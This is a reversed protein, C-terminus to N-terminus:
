RSDATAQRARRAMALAHLPLRPERPRRVLWSSRLVPAVPAVGTWEELTAFAADREAAPLDVLSAGHTGAAVTYTDVAENTGIDFAGATWPDYEGYLFIMQSAEERVWDAAADVVAPDYEPIEPPETGAYDDPGFRLLGELHPDATSPYGLEAYAQYYYADYADLSADSLGSPNSVAALWAWADDNNFSADPITECYEVGTYQFFSWEIGTIASEVAVPLEVRNYEIGLAEADARARGVMAQRRNQLYDVQADRIRQLCDAPPVEDFWVDYRTDGAAQNYPAVYAVTGDVDGPYLHRHYISTMGGKSAGTSIWAGDYIQHFAQAIEHHDAAGQVVRLFSWDTPDPRSPEFYRHEIIMQNADLLLTPEMPYDFYFNDYGTTGLVFPAHEDRHILTLFQTFRQGEPNEHDVPQDFGISFYRYGELDTDLEEVSVVQPLAAIREGIDVTTAADPEVPGADPSGSAADPEGVQDDGLDDDDGGCAALVCSGLLALLFARPYSM